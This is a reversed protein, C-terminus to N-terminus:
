APLHISYVLETYGGPLKRERLHYNVVRKPPGLVPPLESFDAAESSCSELYQVTLPYPKQVVCFEGAGPGDVLEVGNDSPPILNGM